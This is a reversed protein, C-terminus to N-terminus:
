RRSMEAWRQTVHEMGERLLRIPNEIKWSTRFLDPRLRGEPRLRGSRGSSEVFGVPDPPAAVRLRTGEVCCSVPSPPASSSM